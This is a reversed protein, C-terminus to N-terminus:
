DHRAREFDEASMSFDPHCHQGDHRHDGEAEKGALARHLNENTRGLLRHHDLRLFEATEGVPLQVIEDHLSLFKPLKDLADGYGDKLRATVVQRGLVRQPRKGGDFCHCLFAHDVNPEHSPLGLFHAADNGIAVHVRGQVLQGVPFNLDVVAEKGVM